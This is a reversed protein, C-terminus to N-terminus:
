WGKLGPSSFIDSRQVGYTEFAGRLALDRVNNSYWKSNVMPKECVGTEEM